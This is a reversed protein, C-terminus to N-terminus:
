GHSRRRRQVNVARTREGCARRRVNGCFTWLYEQRAMESDGRFSHCGNAVKGEVNGLGEGLSSEFGRVGVGVGVGCVLRTMEEAPLQVREIIVVVVLVRVVVAWGM